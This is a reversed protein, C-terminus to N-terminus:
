TRDSSSATSTGASLTPSRAGRAAVTEDSRESGAFAGGLNAMSFRLADAVADVVVSPVLTGAAGDLAAVDPLLGPFDARVARDTQDCADDHQDGESM